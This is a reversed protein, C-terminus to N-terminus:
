KMALILKAAELLNECIFDPKALFKGDRGAYGTKVLITKCGANKGTLIDRTSDGILFCKELDLDFDEKAKTLMGIKPKRCECDIRYKMCEPKIDSHHKEPHHPCYYIADIKAEFRKLDNKLKEHIKNVDEETCLGRAVQPQNTVVIVHFFENLMKLAKASGDILKIQEPKHLLNINEIIVGDRDLFIARNM